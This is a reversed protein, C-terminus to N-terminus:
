IRGSAAAPPVVVILGARSRRLKSTLPKAATPKRRFVVLQGRALGDGEVVLKGGPAVFRPNSQCHEAPICTASAITPSTPRAGAPDVTAVLAALTTAAALAAAARRPM